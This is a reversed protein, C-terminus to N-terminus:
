ARCDGKPDISKFEAPNMNDAYKNDLGLAMKLPSSSVQGPALLRPSRWTWLWALPMLLAVHPWQWPRQLGPGPSQLWRSSPSLPGLDRTFCPHKTQMFVHKYIKMCPLKLCYFFFFLLLFLALRIVFRLPGSLMAHGCLQASWTESLDSSPTVSPVLCTVREWSRLGPFQTCSQENRCCSILFLSDKLFPM